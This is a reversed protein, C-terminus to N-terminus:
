RIELAAEDTEKMEKELGIKDARIAGTKICRTERIEEHGKRNMNVPDM